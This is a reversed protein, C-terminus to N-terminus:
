RQRWSTELVRFRSGDPRVVYVHDQIGDQGGSASSPQTRELGALRARAAETAEPESGFHGPLSYHERDFTDYGQLTWQPQGVDGSGNWSRIGGHVEDQPHDGNGQDDPADHEGRAVLENKADRQDHEAHDDAEGRRAPQPLRQAILQDVWQEGFLESLIRQGALYAHACVLCFGNRHEGGLYQMDEQHTRDLALQVRDAVAMGDPLRLVPRDPTRGPETM